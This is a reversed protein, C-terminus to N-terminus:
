VQPSAPEFGAKLLSVCKAMSTKVSGVILKAYLIVNISVNDTM